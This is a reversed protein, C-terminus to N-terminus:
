LGYVEELRIDSDQAESIDGVFARYDRGGLSLYIVQPEKDSYGSLSHHVAANVQDNTHAIDGGLNISPNASLTDQIVQGMGLVNSKVDRFSDIMGENLGGIILNGAGVLLKKDYSAPGKNDKIWGGIGGIFKKGDEWKGKLGNILGNIIDKGAGFLDINKVSNIIDDKFGGFLNIVDKFKQVIGDKLDVFYQVINDKTQGISEKLENFKNAAGDKTEAFSERLSNLKEKIVDWNKYLAVGAAIAVAIGAIILGAPGMLFTIAGSIATISTILSGLITIMPGIAAVLIAIKVIMMQQEETLGGFWEALKEIREALDRIPGKLIDGIVIGLESFSSSLSRLSGGITNEQIDKMKEAAGSAGNIETALNNYADVGENVWATVGAQAKGTFIKQNTADREEDTMSQITLVYDNMIEDLGRMEGTAEDYVDVFESMEDANAIIDRTMANVTSGLQEVPVAGNALHGMVAVSEEVSMNMNSLSGGALAMAHELEGVSVKASAAGHAFVDVIRQSEEAEMNFQSMTNTLVRASTEADVTGASMLDFMDSSIKIIDNTEMGSAALIGMGDAAESASYATTKGLRRAEERLSKFEDETAGSIKQVNAMSDDFNMVTNVAATGIGVIPLTLGKTLSGGVSKMKNGIGELGKVADSANKFASAFQDGGTAKLQAEVVYTSM